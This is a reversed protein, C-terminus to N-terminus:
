SESPSGYQGSYSGPFKEGVGPGEDPNGDGENPGTGDDDKDPGTETDDGDLGAEPNDDTGAVSDKTGAVNGSDSTGGGLELDGCVELDRCDVIGTYWSGTGTRGVDEEGDTGSEGNDDDDVVTVASGDEVDASDDNSDTGTGSENAGSGCDAEM